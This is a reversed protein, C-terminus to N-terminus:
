LNLNHRLVQSMLQQLSIDRLSINFPTLQSRFCQSIQKMTPRFCPNPNLRAFAVIAVVVIDQLVTFTPHSFRQDLIECLKIGGDTSTSDLSSLVEKPHKGMLTELAVVGFSYVDCKENVVM